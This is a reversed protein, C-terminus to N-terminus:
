AVELEGFHLDLEGLDRESELDTSLARPKAHITPQPPGLVQCLTKNLAEM